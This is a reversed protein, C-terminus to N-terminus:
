RLNMYITCQFSSFFMDLQPLNKHQSLGSFQRSAWSPNLWAPQSPTVWRFYSILPLLWLLCSSLLCFISSVVCYDFISFLHGSYQKMFRPLSSSCLLYNILQVTSRKNQSQSCLIPKCHLQKLVCVWKCVWVNLLVCEPVSFYIKGRLNLLFDPQCLILHLSTLLPKLIQHLVRGM